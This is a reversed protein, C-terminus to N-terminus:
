SSSALAAVLRRIQAVGDLEAEVFRRGAEGLHARRSPDDLLDRVTAAFDEASDAVELHEGSRWHVGRAGVATSVVPLGAAMAEVMKINVGAGRRVPNVFVDAAALLPGVEPADATVVAGSRELVGRLGPPVRRGVVHLVPPQPDDRLLPWCREAFWGIGDVNNGNDLSGLFLVTRGDGDVPRAPAPARPPLFPPVHVVPTATSARRREADAAAIDAFLDVHRSAHVQAELRRLKAAEVRYPLNRPPPVTRALQDFYDSELNHPRVLLPLGMARAVELGLHVVRFSISVVADFPDDAHRVRLEDVLGPRMPRSALVYPTVSAHTLAGTRRPMSEVVVGPLAARHAALSDASAVGPVVVHLRVGAAAASRLINLSEVRGGSDPPVFEEEAFVVWHARSGGSAGDDM